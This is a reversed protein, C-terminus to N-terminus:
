RAFLELHVYLNPWTLRSDSYGPLNNAESYLIYLSISYVFPFISVFLTDVPHSTM